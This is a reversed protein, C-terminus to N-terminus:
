LKMLVKRKRTLNSAVWIVIIAKQDNLVSYFGIVSHLVDFYISMEALMKTTM